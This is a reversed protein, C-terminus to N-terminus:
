GEAPVETAEPEAPAVEGTLTDPEDSVNEMTSLNVPQGGQTITLYQAAVWGELPGTATEYTVRVWTGDGNRGNVTLVEGSPVGVVVFADASPRDRLNLNAGPDLLVVAMIEQQEIPIFPAQGPTEYFGAEEPDLV